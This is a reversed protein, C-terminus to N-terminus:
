RGANKKLWEEATQKTEPFKAAERYAAILGARNGLGHEARGIIVWADGPRRIGKALADQAMKRSEAYREENSLLRSLNLAMEGDTALPVGKQYADIAQPIQDSFYYAQGLATYIDVGPKLINKGLGDNIVDIAKAEHGEMNSYLAYLQRYGKEDLLGRGRGTELLGTAKDYQDNQAYMTAVNFLLRADDPKKALLEEGLATAQDFKEANIYSALLMQVWNDHAGGDLEIARKLVTAAEDYRETQYLIGGKLALTQPDEKRTESLVRDLTALADDFKDEQYQLQGLQLMIQFHANNDLGNAELSKRYAEIAGPYDNLEAKAIGILQYAWSKEYAGASKNNGVSEGVSVVESFKEEEYAKMLKAMDRQMRPAAKQSPEERTANPFLQEKKAEQQGRRGRQAEAPAAAVLSLAVLLFLTKILTTPNM